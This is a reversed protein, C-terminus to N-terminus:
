CKIFERAEKKCEFNTYTKDFTTTTQYEYLENMIDDTKQEFDIVDYEAVAYLEEEGNNLVYLEKIHFDNGERESKEDVNELEYGNEVVYEESQTDTMKNMSIAYKYLKEAKDLGLNGLKREGSRLRYVTSQEVGSKKAIHLSSLDSDLLRQIEKRM